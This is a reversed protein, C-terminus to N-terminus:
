LEEDMADTISTIHNRLAELVAVLVTFKPLHEQLNFADLADKKTSELCIVAVPQRTKPDSLAFAHYSRSPMRLRASVDNPIGCRDFLMRQWGAKNRKPNASIKVQDHKREWAQHIVGQGLPYYPRGKENYLSNQSFRGLIFYKEANKHYLSLRCSEDLKLQEYMEMLILSFVSYTDVSKSLVRFNLENINSTLEKSRGKEYALKDELDKIKAKDDFTALNGLALLLIGATTIIGLKRYIFFYMVGDFCFAGKGCAAEFISTAYVGSLVAGVASLVTGIM